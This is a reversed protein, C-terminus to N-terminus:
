RESERASWRDREHGNVFVNGGKGGYWFDGERSMCQGM